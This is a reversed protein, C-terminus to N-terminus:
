TKANDPIRREVVTAKHKTIMNYGENRNVPPCVYHDATSDLVEYQKGEFEIRTVEATYDHGDEYRPFIYNTPTPSWKFKSEKQWLEYACGRCMQKGDRWIMMGSYESKHCQKCEVITLMEEHTERDM